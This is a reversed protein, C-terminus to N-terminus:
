WKRDDIYKAKGLYKVDSNRLLDFLKGFASYENEAQVSTRVHNVEFIYDEKEEKKNVRQRSSM